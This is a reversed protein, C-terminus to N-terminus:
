QRRCKSVIMQSTKSPPTDYRRRFTARTLGGLLWFRGVMDADNCGGMSAEEEVVEVVEDVEEIWGDGCSLVVLL